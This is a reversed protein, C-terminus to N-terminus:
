KLLTLYQPEVDTALYALGLKNLYDMRDCKFPDIEALTKGNNEYLERLWAVYLNGPEMVLAAGGADTTVQAQLTEPLNVAFIVAEENGQLYLNRTHTKQSAWFYALEKSQTLFVPDKHESTTHGITSLTKLQRAMIEADGSGKLGESQIAAVLGSATGHYWIGSTAIGDDSLLQALDQFQTPTTFEKM